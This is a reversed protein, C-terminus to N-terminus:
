TYQNIYTVIIVITSSSSDEGGNINDDDYEVGWPFLFIKTIKTKRTLM